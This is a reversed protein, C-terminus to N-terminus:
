ERLVDRVVERLGHAVREHGEASLHGRDSVFQARADGSAELWPTADLCPLGLEACLAVVREQSLGRRFLAPDLQLEALRASWAGESCHWWTPLVLVVLPLGQAHQQAQVLAARFDALVRPIVPPATPPWAAAADVVDLFLGAHCQAWDPPSGPFGERLSLLEPSLQMGALLSAHPANTVLWIELWLLFRSRTAMRARLSDRMLVAWPGSFRLGGVVAFDRNRNELADNGLYITFVVADPEFGARLDAIRQASEFSNFGSIGGNGVTADLGAARLAQELRAPLAQEAEVGYGFVLSDGVVLVREEGARKPGVEPGRMGLANVAVTTWPEQESLRLRGRYGPGLGTGGRATEAYLGVQRFEAMAPPLDWLGRALLELLALALCLGLGLALAGHLWRRRARPRAADLPGAGAENM